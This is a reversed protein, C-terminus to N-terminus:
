AAVAYATAPGATDDLVRSGPHRRGAARGRHRPAPAPEEVSLEAAGVEAGDVTAAIRATKPREEADDALATFTATVSTAGAALVATAPELTYSGAALGSVSLSM